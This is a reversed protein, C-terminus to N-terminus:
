VANTISTKARRMMPQRARMLASSRGPRRPAPGERDAPRMSADHMVAVAATLIQRDAVGLAQGFRPDLGRDAAHSVRIVVRQGLGDDAEVLGLDDVM